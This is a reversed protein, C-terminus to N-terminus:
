TRSSSLLALVLLLLYDSRLPFASTDPDRALVGEVSYSEHVVFTGALGPYMVIKEKFLDFIQRQTTINYVQTGATGPIHVIGDGCMPDTLGTGTAHLVDPYPVNGDTVNIAGINDFPTLYKEAESQPGAYSFDWWITPKIM